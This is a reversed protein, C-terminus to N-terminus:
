CSGGTTVCCLVAALACLALRCLRCLRGIKNDGYVLHRLDCFEIGDCYVASFHLDKGNPVALAIDARREVGALGAVGRAIASILDLASVKHTLVATINRDAGVTVPYRLHHCIQQGIRYVIGFLAPMDMDNRIVSFITESQSHLIRTDANHRIIQRM